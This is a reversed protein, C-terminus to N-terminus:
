KLLKMPSIKKLVKLFNFFSRFFPPFLEFFSFNYFGLFAGLGRFIFFVFSYFDFVEKRLYLGQGLFFFSFIGLFVLKIKRSFVLFNFDLSFYFSKQGVIFSILRWGYVGRLFVYFVLFGLVVLNKFRNLRLGIIFHKSFFGSFFPLSM